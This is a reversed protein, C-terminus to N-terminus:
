EVIFLPSCAMVMSSTGTDFATSYSLARRMVNANGLAKVGDTFGVAGYDSLLGIETIEQGELGKTLAAYTYVKVLKVDRARRAVFEVGAVDDVVPDTNPLGAMSTVGGAAAALSATEIDEKHEEGPERLHVRM